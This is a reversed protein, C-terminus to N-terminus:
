STQRRSNAAQSSDADQRERARIVELQQRQEPTVLAHLGSLITAQVAQFQAVITALEKEKEEKKELTQEELQLAVSMRDCLQDIRPKCDKIVALAQKKQEHSLGLEAFRGLEAAGFDIGLKSLTSQEHQEHQEHPRADRCGAAAPEEGPSAQLGLAFLSCFFLRASLSSLPRMLLQSLSHRASAVSM